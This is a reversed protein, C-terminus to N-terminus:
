RKRAPGPQAFQAHFRERKAQDDEAERAKKRKDFGLTPELEEFWGFGV